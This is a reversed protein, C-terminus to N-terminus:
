AVAFRHLELRFNDTEKNWNMKTVHISVSTTKTPTKMKQILDLKAFASFSLFVM